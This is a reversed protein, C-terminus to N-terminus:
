VAPPAPFDVETQNVHNFYNTFVALAYSGVAEAIHADTFGAGRVRTLDDDSVHGRKEHLALAFNALADLRADSLTGRRAEITQGESLGAMKGIATHAAQCYDCNNASGVALQVVEHEKASLAGKGLPGSMGLYADLVAGSNAMAKFLNFHKGKLPGDFIERARGTAGAPDVVNLRAM